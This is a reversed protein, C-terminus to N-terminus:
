LNGFRFTKIRELLEQEKFPKLFYDTAGLEMAMQRHKQSSRSTLMIVPIQQYNPKTQRQTLFGYGDLRPMELDCIVLKINSNRELRELAEQGDKAQEVRYGAKELILALFRRVNISDDVVMITTKQDVFSPILPTTPDIKLSSKQSDLWHSLAFPDILPVVRGNGLITCGIFGPPMKRTGEINRITVEQEGWFRDCQIGFSKTGQDIILITPETILPITETMISSISPFNPRTQPFNFYSELFILPIAQNKKQFIAQDEQYSIKELELRIMENITNSPFALLMGATEILLVRVVSLTFPVILSFTTGMGQTTEVEIDGQIQQLNNRVVDMGIGRGSLSTITETTTFGPEFIFQLLKQPSMAQIEAESFGIERLKLRIKELDIGAGDDKIKIITHNGRYTANIEITGTEPKGNKLRVEPTEIGHAFANRLLHLIPANLTELINREVLTTEGKVRFDVKKGYELSMERLAIPFRGILDSLPRMRVQTLNTQMQKATRSLNRTTNETDQLQTDLDSTIEQLQVITEMVESSLLQRDSYRDLELQDFTQAYPNQSPNIQPHDYIEGLESHNQELTQVKNKLQNVLRRLSKLQTELANRDINLEGFQNNLKELQQLPVRITNPNIESPQTSPKISEAQSEPLQYSIVPLQYSNVPLKQGTKLLQEESAEPQDINKIDELFDLDQTITINNELFSDLNPIQLETPLQDLQHNIILSQSRRLEEIALSAITLTEEPQERLSREISNCLSTFAPLELMQGLGSLEQINSILEPKIASHDGKLLLEELKILVGEVETEFLLIVMDNGIEEAITTLEAEIKPDGLCDHLQDFLPYIETELWEEDLIPSQYYRQIVQRMDDLSLILLHEIDETLLEPHSSNLVKFCDELRHALYSLTQFGMMAAGGKISHAARLIRDLYQGKISGNSIELLESEIIGVYEQAEELFQLRIEQEKNHTM